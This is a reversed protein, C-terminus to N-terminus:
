HVTQEESKFRGKSIEYLNTKFINQLEKVDELNMEGSKTKRCIGIGNEFNNNKFLINFGFQYFVAENIRSLWTKNSKFLSELSAAKM